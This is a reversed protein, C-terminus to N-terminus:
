TVNPFDLGKAIMQTGLLIKVEGERFRALAREHSGPRQMTDSDMRLVPVGPFRSRIEAELRQRALGCYRIGDFACEPGRATARQEFDCYHCGVREGERHHTLALDCQPCRAAYGCAPCQLHTSYGRRNLLLIVQGDDKLWQD